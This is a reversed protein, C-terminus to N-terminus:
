KSKKASKTEEKAKKAEEKKIRDEEDAITKHDAEFVHKWEEPIEPLNFGDCDIYVFEAEAAASRIDSCELSLRVKTEIKDNIYDNEDIYEAYREYFKHYDQYIHQLPIFVKNVSVLEHQTVSLPILGIIGEYHMETVTEAVDLIAISQEEAERRAIELDVISYLDFPEHHVEISYKKGNGQAIKPLIACRGFDMNAKLFKIYKSYERSQRIFRECTKIYKDRERHSRLVHKVREPSEDIAFQFTSIKRKPRDEPIMNSDWRIAM